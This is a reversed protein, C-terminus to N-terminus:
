FLSQFYHGQFIKQQQKQQRAPLQEHHLGTHSIVENITRLDNKNERFMAM